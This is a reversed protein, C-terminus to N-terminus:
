GYSLRNALNLAIIPNIDTASIILINAYEEEGVDIDVKLCARFMMTTDALTTANEPENMAAATRRPIPGSCIVLTKIETDDGVSYSLSELYLSAM